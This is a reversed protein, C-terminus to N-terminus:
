VGVAWCGRTSRFTLTLNVVSIDLIRSVGDWFLAEDDVGHPARMGLGGSFWYLPEPSERYLIDEFSSGLASYHDTM